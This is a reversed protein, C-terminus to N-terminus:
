ASKGLLRDRYKHLKTCFADERTGLGVGDHQIEIFSAFDDFFTALEKRLDNASYGYSELEAILRDVKM